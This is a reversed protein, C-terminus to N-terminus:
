KKRAVVANNATTGTVSIPTTKMPGGVVVSHHPKTHQMKNSQPPLPRKYHGNDTTTATTPRKSRSANKDTVVSNPESFLSDGNKLGMLFTFFVIGIANFTLATATPNLVWRERQETESMRYFKRM